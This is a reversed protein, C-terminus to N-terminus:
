QEGELITNLNQELQQMTQLFAQRLEDDVNAFLNEFFLRQIEQGRQILPQAKETCLLQTKRRDGALACRQIYGEQVLRDINVSVLNAKIQRIEVIDRATTYQPNNGLFMLIDFATHPLNMEQCLPKCVHHYALSVKHAFEISPNM